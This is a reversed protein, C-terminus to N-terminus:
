PGSLLAACYGGIRFGAWFAKVADSDSVQNDSDRIGIKYQSIYDVESSIRDPFEAYNSSDKYIDAIRHEYKQTIEEESLNALYFLVAKLMKEALQQSHFVAGNTDTGEDLCAAAADKDEMASDLFPNDKRKAGSRDVAELRSYLDEFKQALSYGETFKNQIEDLEAASLRRAVRSTLGEIFPLINIEPTAYVLPIRVLYIEDRIIIPIRGLDRATNARKGYAQKYWDHIKGLLNPGEYDGYESSDIGFSMLPGNYDPAAIPFAQFPREYVPVGKQSLEADIQRMKEYFEDAMMPTLDKNM